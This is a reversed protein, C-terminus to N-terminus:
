AAGMQPEPPHKRHVLYDIDIAIQVVLHIFLLAAGILMAANAGAEPMWHEQAGRTHREATQSEYIRLGYKVFVGAIVVAFGTTLLRIWPRVGNPLFHSVFDMSLLRRHHAAFAGGVMALLFCAYRVDYDAGEFPKGTSAVWAAGGGFVIAIGIFTVFTWKDPGKGHKVLGVVGGVAIIAYLALMPIPQDGSFWISTVLVLFAILGFLAAQEILGLLTDGTRLMLAVTPEDPFRERLTRHFGLFWGLGILAAFGAALILILLLV